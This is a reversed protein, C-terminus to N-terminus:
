LLLSQTLLCHASRRGDSARLELDELWRDLAEERFRRYRGLQIHPAGEKYLVQFYKLVDDHLDLRGNPLILEPPLPLTAHESAQLVHHEARRGPAFTVGAPVRQLRRM